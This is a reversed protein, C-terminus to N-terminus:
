RTGEDPRTRSSLLVLTTALSVGAILGPMGPANYLLSMAVSDPRQTILAAAYAGLILLWLAGGVRLAVTM